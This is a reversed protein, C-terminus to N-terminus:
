NRLPDDLPTTRVDLISALKLVAFVEAVPPTLHYVSLQGGVAELRRHLGLLTEATTSTLFHVNGLDLAVQRGPQVLALLEGRLWLANGEDLAVRDGGLRVVTRNGVAHTLLRRGISAHPM